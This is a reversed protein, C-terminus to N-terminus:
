SADWSAGQLLGLPSRFSTAACAPEEVAGDDVPAALCLNKWDKQARVSKEFERIAILTEKNWASQSTDPANYMVVTDWDAEPISQLPTVDEASQANLHEAILVSKDYENVM